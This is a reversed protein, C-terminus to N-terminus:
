SLNQVDKMREILEMVIRALSKLKEIDGLVEKDWFVGFDFQINGMIDKYGPCSLIHEDSDVMGCVNCEVGTWRGPFNVKTPWMRYRSMFIARAECFRLESLYKMMTGTYEFGGLLVRDTKSSIVMRKLLERAQITVVKKKLVKRVDNVELLKEISLDFVTCADNLESCFGPVSREYLATLLRKSIRNDDLKFTEVALLIKELLIELTLDNVGFEYQVAASPTSSPLELVRKLLSPKIGDLNERIGKYKMVDWFQCGFKVRSDLCSNMLLRIYNLRIQSLEPLKCIQEIENSVSNTKGLRSKLDSRREGNDSIVTGLYVHEKVQELEENNLIVVGHTKVNMPMVKCKSVKYKLRSKKEFVESDVMSEDALILSSNFGILDDVFTMRNICIGDVCFENSFCDGIRKSDSDMLPWAVLVADCSGQVFVKEMNIPQCKGSPIHPICTRRSNITKYLQWSRGDVGNRYAEVLAHEFNMSDFFKEIDMFKLVVEKKTWRAYDQILKVVLLADIVSRKERGGCAFESGVEDVIGSNEKYLWKQLVSLVMHRLFIGRYDNVLDFIGKNKLILSMKEERLLDPIVNRRYCMLVCRFIVSSIKDGGLKALDISMPGYSAKSGKMNAIISKVVELTPEKAQDYQNKTISDIQKFIQNMVDWYDQWVKDNPINNQAFVKTFHKSIVDDIGSKSVQLVGNVDRLPFDVNCSKKVSRRISFVERHPNKSQTLECVKSETEATLNEAIRASIQKQIDALSKGRENNDGVNARIWSERKLLDRVVPDVGKIRKKSPKVVQFSRALTANWKDMLLGMEKDVDVSPDVFLTDFSEDGEINDKFRERAELNRLNYRTEKSTHLDSNGQIKLEVLITNHDTKTVQKKGYKKMRLEETEDISMSQVMENMFTNCIVLDITSTTGNRPDVRTVVGDCMDLCNVVTLGEESVMSMLQKGGADQKDQCGSIIESGIHVNADFMIIMGERGISASRFHNRIEDFQRSIEEKTHVSQQKLHATYIRIGVKGVQLRIGLMNVVDNPEYLRMKEASCVKGSLIIGVNQGVSNKPYICQYGRLSIKRTMTEALLVVDVKTSNMVYELCTKKGTFGQINAYLIKLNTSQKGKKSRRVRTKKQQLHPLSPRSM